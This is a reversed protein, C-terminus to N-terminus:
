LLGTTLNQSLLIGDIAKKWRDPEDERWELPVSLWHQEKDIWTWWSVTSCFTEIVAVLRSYSDNVEQNDFGIPDLDKSRVVQELEGFLKSPLAKTMFNLKLWEIVPGDPPLQGLVKRYLQTDQISNQPSDSSTSRHAEAHKVPFMPYSGPVMAVFRCFHSQYAVTVIATPGNRNKVVILDAEGLRPHEPNDQDPRHIMIIIDAVREIVRDNKLQQIPNNTTPFEEHIREAQATIIIPIRLTEALKKLRWLSFETSVHDSVKHDTIWQLSDILLLKLGSQQVLATADAELQEIRFEAPTGIRIPATAMVAMVQAIRSWDEEGMQGTRMRHLPVRAEASLLRSQLEKSNTEGSILMSPLRYKISATQCFNLLLTTKGSSPRGGIVVLCGQSWGGLLSDLDDFGTPVRFTGIASRAGIAEIEDLVEPLLHAIPHSLTEEPQRERIDPGNTQARVPDTAESTSAASGPRAAQAWLRRFREVEAKEDLRARRAMAEVLLEVPGWSPVSTGTFLKHISTHSTVGAGGIDRQLQRTSPYGAALHLQHLADVLDSLPGPALQARKFGPM